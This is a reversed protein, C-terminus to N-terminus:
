KSGFFSKVEKEILANPVILPKEMISVKVQGAIRYQGSIGGARFNGEQENGSFVGGKEQIGARVTQVAQAVNRPKDFSFSYAAGASRNLPESTKGNAYRITFLLKDGSVRYTGHVGGYAFAGERENGTFTGGQKRAADRMSRATAAMDAPKQYAFKEDAYAPPLITFNFRTAATEAAPSGKVALRVGRYAANRVADRSLQLIQTFEAELDKENYPQTSAAVMISEQGYPAELLLQVPAEPVTRVTNAPLFNNRNLTNPFLLKMAGNVDIHYVKIYCDREAEVNIELTDGDLYTRSESNPWAALRFTNAPIPDHIVPPVPEPAPPLIGDKEEAEAATKINDPLIDVGLDQLEQLSVLMEKSDIIEGGPDKVLQLTVRVNTGEQIYTGKIFGKWPEDPRVREIGRTPAIVRFKPNVPAHANIRDYLYRSLAGPTDTGALTVVGIRVAVSSNLRTSLGDVADKVKSNLDQAAAGAALASMLTLMLVLRKM